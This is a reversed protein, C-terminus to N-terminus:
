IASQFTSLHASVDVAGERERERERERGVCERVGDVCWFQMYAVCPVQQNGIQKERLVVIEENLREIEAEDEKIKVEM